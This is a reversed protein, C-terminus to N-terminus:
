LPRTCMAYWDEIRECVRDVSACDLKETQGEVCEVLIDGECWTNKYPDEQLECSEPLLRPDDEEEFPDRNAEQEQAEIQMLVDEYKESPPSLSDLIKYGETNSSLAGNLSDNIFNMHQDLRLFLGCSDQGLHLGVLESQDTFLPTGVRDCEQNTSLGPWSASLGSAYLKDLKAQQASFYLDVRPYSAVNFSPQSTRLFIVALNYSHQYLFSDAGLADVVKRARPEYLPHVYTKEVLGFYQINEPYQNKMLATDCFEDEACEAVCEALTIWANPAVAIVECESYANILYYADEAKKSGSVVSPGTEQNLDQVQDQKADSQSSSNFTETTTCGWHLLLILSLLLHYM